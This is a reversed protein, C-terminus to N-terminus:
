KLFTCSPLFSLFTCHFCWHQNAPASSRWLCLLLMQLTCHGELQPMYRQEPTCLQQQLARGRHRMAACPPESLALPSYLNPPLSHCQGVGLLRGQRPLFPFHNMQKNFNVLLFCTCVCVPQICFIFMFILLKLLPNNLFMYLFVLEHQLFNFTAM